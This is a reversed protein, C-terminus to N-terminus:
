SKQGGVIVPLPIGRTYFYLSKQIAYMLEISVAFDQQAMHRGDMQNSIRHKM